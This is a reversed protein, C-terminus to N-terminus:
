STRIAIVPVGGAINLPQIDHLINHTLAFQADVTSQRGFYAEIDDELMSTRERLVAGIQHESNKISDTWEDIQKRSINVGGSDLLTVAVEHFLFCGTPVSYRMEGALFVVNGISAVMGVNHTILNFSMSKLVNYITVGCHVMGGPTSMFLYVDQVDERHCQYCTELLHDQSVENIGGVLSIYRQGRRDVSAVDSGMQAEVTAPPIEAGERASVAGEGDSHPQRAM